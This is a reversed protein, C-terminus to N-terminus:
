GGGHVPIILIEDEEKVKSKLSAPKGNVLVILRKENLDRLQPLLKNLEVSGSVSLKREHFGLKEAIYGITKVKVM